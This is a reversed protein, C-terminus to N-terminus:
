RVPLWAEHPHSLTVRKQNQTHQQTQYRCAPTFGHIRFGQEHGASEGARVRFEFLLARRTVVTAIAVSLCPQAEVAVLLDCGVDARLVAKVPVEGADPCRLAAATVRLMESARGIDHLQTRILEIVVAGLKRQPIRVGTDNARTAVHGVFRIALCGDFADFAVLMFLRVLAPEPPVATRAVIGHRPVARAEIMVLSGIWQAVLVDIHRAHTTVEAVAVLACRLLTNGAVCRIVHMTALTAVLAASAVRGGSPLGRFEVMELFGTERELSGVRADVALVTVAAAVQLLFDGLVAEAAVLPLVRMGAPESGSALLTVAIVLPFGRCEIMCAVPMPLEGAAVLLHFAMGTVGGYHSSLLQWRFARAAVTRTVHMCALEACLALLTMRRLAPLCGDREIVIERAERQNAQVDGHGALLTMRGQLVAIHAVIAVVAVLAVVHM